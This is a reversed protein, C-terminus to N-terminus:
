NGPWSSDQNHVIWERHENIFREVEAKPMGYPASVQVDGNKVIRMSLRSTKRYTVEIAM